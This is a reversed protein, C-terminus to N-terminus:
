VYMLIKPGEIELLEKFKVDRIKIALKGQM